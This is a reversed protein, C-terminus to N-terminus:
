ARPKLGGVASAALSIKQAAQLWCLHPEGAVSRKASEECCITSLQHMLNVLTDFDEM